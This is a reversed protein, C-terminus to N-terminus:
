AVKRRLSTTVTRLCSDCRGLLIPPDIAIARWEHCLHGCDCRVVPRTYAETHAVAVRIRQRESAAWRVCAYHGNTEREPDLRREHYDFFRVTHRM